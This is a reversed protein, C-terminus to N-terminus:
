WRTVPKSQDARPLLDTLPASPELGLEQEFLRHRLRYQRMAQTVNGEALHVRIVARHASERPEIRVAALGVEVASAFRRQEALTVALAELAHLRLQRLREREFLV